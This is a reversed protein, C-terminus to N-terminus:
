RSAGSSAASAPRPSRRMWSASATASVGAEVVEGPEVLDPREHLIERECASLELCEAATDVRRPLDDVVEVDRELRDM